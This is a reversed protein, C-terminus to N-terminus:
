ATYKLVLFVLIGLFIYFGLGALNVLFDSNDRAERPVVIDEAKTKSSEEKKKSSNNKKGKNEKAKEIDTPTTPEVYPKPLKQRPAKGKTDEFESYDAKEIKEENENVDLLGM